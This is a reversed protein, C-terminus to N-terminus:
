LHSDPQDCIIEREYIQCSWIVKLDKVPESIIELIVQGLPLTLIVPRDNGLDEKKNTKPVSISNEEKWVESIFKRCNGHSRKLLLIM